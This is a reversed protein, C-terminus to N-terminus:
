VKRGIVPTNLETLLHERLSYSHQGRSHLIAEVAAVVQAIANMACAQDHMGMRSNSVEIVIDDVEIRVRAM